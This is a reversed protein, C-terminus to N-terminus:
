QSLFVWKIANLALLEAMVRILHLFVSACIHWTYPQLHSDPNEPLPRVLLFLIPTILMSMTSSDVSSFLNLHPCTFFLATQVLAM